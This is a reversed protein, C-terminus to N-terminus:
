TSFSNIFYLSFTQSFIKAKIYFWLLEHLFTIADGSPDAFGGKVNLSFADHVYELGLIYKIRDTDTKCRSFTQLTSGTVRSLIRQVTIYYDGTAM